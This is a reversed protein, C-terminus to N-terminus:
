IPSSLVTYPEIPSPVRCHWRRHPIGYVQPVRSSISRHRVFDRASLSNFRACHRAGKDQRASEPALNLRGRLKQVHVACRRKRRRWASCGDIGSSDILMAALHNMRLETSSEHDACARTLHTQSPALLVLTSEFSRGLPLEAANDKVNTGCRCSLASTM